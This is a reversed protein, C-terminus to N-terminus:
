EGGGRKVSSRLVAPPNPLRNAWQRRREEIEEEIRTLRNILYNIAVYGAGLSILLLLLFALIQILDPSM